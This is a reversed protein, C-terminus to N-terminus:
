RFIILIRASDVSGNRNRATGPPSELIRLAIDALASLDAMRMHGRTSFM